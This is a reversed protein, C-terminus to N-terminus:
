VNKIDPGIKLWDQCFANKLSPSVLKYLHLAMGEEFPIYYCFVSFVKVSDLFIEEGSASPLDMWVQCSADKPSPSKLKNM